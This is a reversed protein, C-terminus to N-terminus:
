SNYQIYNENHVEYGRIEEMFNIIENKHAGLMEVEIEKGMQIGFVGIVSKADIVMSGDYLNIDNNYKSCLNIFGTVQEPSELKIKIRNM